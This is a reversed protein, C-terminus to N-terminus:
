KQTNSWVNTKIRKPVTKINTMFKTGELSLKYIIMITIINNNNNNNNCKVKM